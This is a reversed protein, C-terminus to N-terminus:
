EKLKMWFPATAFWLVTGALMLGAHASWSLVSQSVLFAPIVTLALAALSLSKLITKM